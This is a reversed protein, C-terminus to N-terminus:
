QGSFLSNEKELPPPPREPLDEDSYHRFNYFLVCRWTLQFPHFESCFRISFLMISSIQWVDDWQGQLCNQSKNKVMGMQCIGRVEPALKKDSHHRCLTHATAPHYTTMKWCWFTWDTQDVFWKLQKGWAWKKQSETMSRLIFPLIDVRM